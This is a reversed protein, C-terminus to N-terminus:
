VILLRLCLLSVTVPMNRFTSMKVAGYKRAMGVGMVSVMMANKINTMKEAMDQSEKEHELLNAAM